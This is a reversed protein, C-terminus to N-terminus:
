STPLLSSTSRLRTTTGHGLVHASERVIITIVTIIVKRTNSNSINNSNSNSNRNSSSSSSKSNGDSNSNSNSNWTQLAVRRRWTSAHRSQEESM